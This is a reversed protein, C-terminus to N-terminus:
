SSRIRGEAPDVSKPAEPHQPELENYSLGPLSVPPLSETPDPLDRVFPPRRRAHTRLAQEYSITAVDEKLDDDNWNASVHQSRSAAEGTKDTLAAFGALLSAFRSAKPPQPTEATGPM